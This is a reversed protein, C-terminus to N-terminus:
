GVMANMVLAGAIVIAALAVIIGFAMLVKREDDMGIRKRWTKSDACYRRNTVAVTGQASFGDGRVVGRRQWDIGMCSANPRPM